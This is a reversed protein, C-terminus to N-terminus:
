LAFEGVKRRYLRGQPTRTNNYINGAKPGHDIEAVRGFDSFNSTPAPTKEDVGHKVMETYHHEIGSSTRVSIFGKIEAQTPSYYLTARDKQM